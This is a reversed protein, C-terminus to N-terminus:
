RAEEDAVLPARRVDWGVFVRTGIPITDMEDTQSVAKLSLADGLSIRTHQMGGSYEKSVIVGSLQMGHQPALGYLIRQPRLCLVAADGPGFGRESRAPLSVGQTEFTLEDGNVKAVKGSLLNSQGIFGAAFANAPQEYVEEPTGIQQIHGGNMVVIRTSMNLAEEQDHTIYIFTVGSQRQLQKLEGQMQRRLQLDLAGLPEDLLLVKPRLVLSRAIA